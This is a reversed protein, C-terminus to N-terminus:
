LHHFKVKFNILQSSIPYHFKPAFLNTCCIIQTHLIQVYAREQILTLHQTLFFNVESILEPELTDLCVEKATYNVIYGKKLKLSSVKKNLKVKM